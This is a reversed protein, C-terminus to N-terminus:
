KLSLIFYIVSTVRHLLCLIFFFSFCNRKLKSKSNKRSKPTERLQQISSTSEEQYLGCFLWNKMRKAISPKTTM